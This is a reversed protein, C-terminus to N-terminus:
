RPIPDPNGEITFGAWYYPNSWRPVMAIARQASRLAEAPSQGGRYLAEYFRRMLEATAADDVDWLSGVVRRSGAILFSYSLGVLGEGPLQDGNATQCASLVVLDVPMRMSAIDSFWLAGAQPHGAADFQSLLINSLDPQVPNLFAHTAFHVISFRSWDLSRVQEASAAFGVMAQVHSAGAAAEIEQVEQGAYALRTL